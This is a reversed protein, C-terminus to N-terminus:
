IRVHALLDAVVRHYFPTFTNRDSAYEADQWIWGSYDNAHIPSQEFFTCMWGECLGRTLFPHELVKLDQIRDNPDVQILKIVLDKAEDSALDWEPLNFNLVGKRILRIVDTKEDANFPLYGSIMAYLVVGMGWWDTARTPTVFGDKVMEPPMYYVVNDHREAFKSGCRYLPDDPISAKMKIIDYKDSVWMLNDQEICVHVIGKKQMHILGKVLQTFIHVARFEGFTNEDLDLEHTATWINGGKCEEVVQYYYYDQLILDLTKICNPHRVSEAMLLEYMITKRHKEPHNAARMMKLIAEAGTKKNVVRRIMGHNGTRM